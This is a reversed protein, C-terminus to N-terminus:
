LRYSYVGTVLRPRSFHLVVDFAFTSDTATVFGTWLMLQSSVLRRDPIKMEMNGNEMKSSGACSLEFDGASAFDSASEMCGASEICGAPEICGASEICGAIEICGASEM